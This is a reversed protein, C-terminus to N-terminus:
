CVKSGGLIFATTNVRFITYGTRWDMCVMGLERKSRLGPVGKIWGVLRFGCGIGLFQMSQM